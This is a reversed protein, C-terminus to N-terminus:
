CSNLGRRKVDIPCAPMRNILCPIIIQMERGSNAHRTSILEMCGGCVRGDVGGYRCVYGMYMNMRINRPRTM